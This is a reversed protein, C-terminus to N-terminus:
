QRPEAKGFPHFQSAEGRVKGPFDLAIDEGSAPLSSLSHHVGLRSDIFGEGSVARGAQSNSAEGRSPQSSKPFSLCSPSSERSPITRHCRVRHCGGRETVGM